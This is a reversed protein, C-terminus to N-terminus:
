QDAGWSYDSRASGERYYVTNTHKIPEFLIKSIQQGLLIFIALM